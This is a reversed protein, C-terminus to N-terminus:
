IKKQNWCNSHPEPGFLLTLSRYFGQKGERNRKMRYDDALKKGGYAGALAGGIAGAPYSMMHWFLEEPFEGSERFEKSMIKSVPYGKSELLKEGPLGGLTEGTALGGGLGLGKIAGMGMGDLGYGKKARLAGMLAGIPVTALLSYFPSRQEQAIKDMYGNTFAQNLENM